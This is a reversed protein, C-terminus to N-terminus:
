VYKSDFDHGIDHEIDHEIDEDSSSSSSSDYSMDVITFINADPTSSSHDNENGVAINEGRAKCIDKISIPLHLIIEDDEENASNSNDKTKPKSKIVKKDPLFDGQSKRPRGRRKKLPSSNDSVM